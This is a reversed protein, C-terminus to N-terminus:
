QILGQRMANAVASARDSVGWKAYINEFHTKVTSPSLKLKQAIIKGSMGQSALQLVQCERITLEPQRRLEGSRHAFFHGLEHGMGTLSRLLTETPQLIERAYFELVAYVVDGSVAPMAVAGLLGSAVAADRGLFAPAHPLSVVVVPQRALWARVPLAQGRGTKLQRSATETESVESSDARWSSRWELTNGQLIWLAGTAFDMATGLEALLRKGGEEISVWAELAEEIAIHGAIERAIQRQETVDLVTGMLRRPVGYEEEITVVIWQLRRVAGDARVIRFELSDLHGTTAATEVLMRVRDRDDPYTQEFMYEITPKLAGPSIGFLRFLNDSWRVEGARIDWDYSGIGAIEEGRALMALGRLSFTEGVRGVSIDRIWLTLLASEEGVRALAIEAAFMLGDPGTIMVELERDVLRSPDEALVAALRTMEANRQEVAVLLDAVPRRLADARQVGLMREAGENLDVVKGRGTITILATAPHRAATHPISRSM